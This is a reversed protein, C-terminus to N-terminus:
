CMVLVVLWCNLLQAFIACIKMALNHNSTELSVTATLM